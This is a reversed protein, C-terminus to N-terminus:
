IAIAPLTKESKIQKKNKIKLYTNLIKLKDKFVMQGKFFKYINETVKVMKEIKLNEIFFDKRDIINDIRFKTDGRDIIKVKNIMQNIIIEFHKNNIEVGQSKYVKQMNKILYKQLYRVGKINLIDKLSIIGDTLKEGCKIYDNNQVLIQKDTKIKYKIKKKFILSKIIIEIRNKYKKGIEIIGEIDSIIARNYPNRAEFLESLRPLGGTIDKTQFFNKPTKILIKGKKIKENDKVKLYSGYPINYEKKIKNKKDKILITPILDKNKSEFIIKEKIGINKDEEIKYNIDKKFNNLKIIGDYESILISNCPDWKYIIDGINVKQNNKFYIISSYPVNKKFLIKNKNVILLKTFRSIILYKNEKKKIYKIKKLKIKGKYRSKIKNSKFLNSATGGIHFTRLTLQTGPEGISQGAIVGIAEGINIIKGNSLNTGYCKSCIGKYTNCTLPSRIYIYNIKKKNLIDIVLKNIILGKKLIIKKKFLIDFLLIRGLVEYNLYKDKKIKIKIGNLTGCDKEKIIINQVVDVLRRTLYGADATKLATDALGKRSGHTSIFYELVSLGELFNSLIPTEIIQNNEEELNSIASSISLNYKKPKEMLGKVGSLQRIQEKSSRAGSDLMMYLSNTKKKKIKNIVLKTIKSIIHSWIDLIKNDKDKKTIFGLNYNKYINNIKKKTNNIIKYKKKHTLIEQINFSIGGIFAFRLGLNKLKDLFKYTTIIDSKNFIEVIVKKISKKNILKNIYKITKKKPIINNFLARGVTTYILKNRFKLRINDHINIKNLNYLIKVEEISYYVKIKKKKKKNITLYYLGLIIDQSPIIIPNGNSINFINNSSLMLFLAEYISETDLPLHVAMQDGDFDANFASCVLPHLKISKSKTLIPLFSQISLRHLTPARNLLIPHGKIVYKLIKWIKNKKTNILIQANKINKVLGLKILKNILFPKYL